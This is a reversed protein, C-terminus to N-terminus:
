SRFFWPKSLNREAIYREMLAQAEGKFAEPIIVRSYRYRSVRNGRHRSYFRLEGDRLEIWRLRRLPVFSEVQRVIGNQGFIV